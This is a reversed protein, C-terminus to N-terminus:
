KKNNELTILYTTNFLGGKLLNYSKLGINFNHNIINKLENENLEKYLNSNTNM